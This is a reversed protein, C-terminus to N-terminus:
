SRVMTWDQTLNAPLSCATRIAPLSPTPTLRLVNAPYQWSSVTIWRCHALCAPLRPPAHRGHFLHSRGYGMRFIGGTPNEIVRLKEVPVGIAEAIEDRDFYLTMTKCHICLNDDEDYYAQMVDGEISMHPERSSYFSGEVSYAADGIIEPVKEHDGKLVPLESYINKGYTDPMWDHIKEADPTVAELYNMYEPLPELEVKVADAAAKAHARTDACVLAVVDGYYLIEDEALVHHAQQMEVTRESFAYTMLRNAGKVDEATVIKVVGPMKEAESCDINIIKAHSYKRPQVLEVKLTEEPMHLEVDDGYDCVGCAKPMANPRILPKGYFDGVDKSWDYTIDDFTKEGRMIAAAEMVADVIQKYGTCRCVNRHKQFWDRVDERTPNPNDLLLQYASVIFGPVCFGCQVAGLHVWAYQLPHPNLVTGIGEITMVSSYEKVNKIKRTCSRIVKGDLIVSCAGCVGTGCGVKTGTLGLRRLVSALTDKEPDCILMHDAGNINLTMKKLNM